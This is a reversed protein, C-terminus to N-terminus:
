FLESKLRKAIYERDATFIPTQLDVFGDVVCAGRKLHVPLDNWNVSKKHLMEHMERTNKGLLETHSYHAQALTSVSNRTCDQQRWIFYNVVEHPPLNFFRADFLGPQGFLQSFIVSAEAAAISVMKQLRYGFWAETEARAYDTLLFSIEDSAVYVLQCGQLQKSVEAATRQMCAVFRADWPKELGKTLTHFAKGDVRGIVPLRRVLYNDPVVEYEKMRDGLSDNM